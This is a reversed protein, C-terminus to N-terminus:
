WLNIGSPQVTLGSAARLCVPEILVPSRKAPTKKKDLLVLYCGFGFFLGSIAESNRLECNDLMWGSIVLGTFELKMGSVGTRILSKM